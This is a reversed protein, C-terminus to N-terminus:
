ARKRGGRRQRSGGGSRAGSGRAGPGTSRRGPVDSPRRIPEPRRRVVGFLYIMLAPTMLIFFLPTGGAVSLAVAVLMAVFIFSRTVRVSFDTMRRGRVWSDFADVLMAILAGAAAVLGLASALPKWGTGQDGWLYSYAIGGCLFVTLVIVTMGASRLTKQGPTLDDRRVPM